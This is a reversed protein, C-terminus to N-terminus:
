NKLPFEQKVWDALMEKDYSLPQNREMPSILKSQFNLDFLRREGKKLIAGQADKLEFNLQMRPIYISQIFRVSDARAPPIDGALDIDTFAVSLKQGTALRSSATKKLHESLLDLYSESYSGSFSDSVDTFKDPDQFSVAVNNILPANTSPAALQCSSTALVVAILLSASTKM